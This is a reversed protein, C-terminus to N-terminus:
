ERYEISQNVCISKGWLFFSNFTSQFTSLQFFFLQTRFSGQNTSSKTTGAQVPKETAKGWASSQQSAPAVTPKTAQAPRAWAGGAQPQQSVSAGSQAPKAWAGGAQSPPASPGAQPQGTVKPKAAQPETSFSLTLIFLSQIASFLLIFRDSYRVSHRLLSYNM